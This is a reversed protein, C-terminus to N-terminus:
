QTLPRSRSNNELSSAAFTLSSRVEEWRPLSLPESIEVGNGSDTGNNVVVIGCNPVDQLSWFLEGYSLM